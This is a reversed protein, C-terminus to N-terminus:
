RYPPQQGPGPPFGPPPANYGVAPAPASKKMIGAVILLLGGLILVVWGWQLSFANTITTAMEGSQSALESMKSKFNFFDLAVVGLILIGTAILIRNKNILAIILSIVGLGGVIMGDIGAGDRLTSFYSTTNTEGLLSVSVLPCFVGAIVLVAGIIGLIRTNM